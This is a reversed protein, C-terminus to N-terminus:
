GYNRDTISRILTKNLDEYTELIINIDDVTGM